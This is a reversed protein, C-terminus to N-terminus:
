RRMSSGADHAEERTDIMAEAGELDPYIPCEPLECEKAIKLGEEFSIKSPKEQILRCFYCYYDNEAAETKRKKLM